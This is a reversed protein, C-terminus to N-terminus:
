RPRGPPPPRSRWQSGARRATAAPPLRRPRPLPRVSAAPRRWRTAPSARRRRRGAGRAPPQEDPSRGPRVVVSDPLEPGQQRREPVGHVCDLDVAAQVELGGDRRRAPARAPSGRTPRRSAGEPEVPPRDHFHVGALGVGGVDQRRTGPHDGRVGERLRARAEFARADGDDRHVDRLNGPGFARHRAARHEEGSRRVGRVSRPQVVISRRGRADKGPGAPASHM